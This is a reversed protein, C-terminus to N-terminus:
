SIEALAGKSELLSTAQKHGRRRAMKLPTEGYHSVSNIDAGAMLLVYTIFALPEPYIGTNNFSEVEIDIALHIPYFGNFPINPDAGLSLLYNVVEANANEVALFLANGNTGAADIDVGADIFQQMQHFDGNFAAKAFYSPTESNLM